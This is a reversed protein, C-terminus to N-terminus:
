LYKNNKVRIKENEQSIAKRQELTKCNKCYLSCKGAVNGGFREGCFLCECIVKTPTTDKPVTDYVTDNVKVYRTTGEIRQIKKDM